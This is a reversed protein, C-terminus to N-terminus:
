APAYAPISYSWAENRLIVGAPVSGPISVRNALPLRTTYDTQSVWSIPGASATLGVSTRLFEHVNTTDSAGQATSHILSIRNAVTITPDNCRIHLGALGWHLENEGLTIIAPPYNGKTTEAFAGFWGDMAPFLVRRLAEGVDYAPVEHFVGDADYTQGVMSPAAYAVQVRTEGTGATPVSTGSRNRYAGSIINTATTYIFYDAM